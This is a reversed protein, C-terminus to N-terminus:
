NISALSKKIFELEEQLNEALANLFKRKRDPSLTKWYDTDIIGRELRESGMRRQALIVEELGMGPFAIEAFVSFLSRNQENMRSSMHERFSKLSERGKETIQLKTGRKQATGKKKSPSSQILGEKRLSAIMPYISGPGPKWVGETRSEIKTILEYGKMPGETLLKLMYFRLLGRPVAHPERETMQEM